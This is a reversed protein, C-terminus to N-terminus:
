VAPLDANPVVVACLRADVSEDQLKIAVNARPRNTVLLDPRVLVRMILTTEETMARRVEAIVVDGSRAAAIASENHDAVILSGPAIGADSVADSLVRYIGMKRAKLAGAILAMAQPTEAAVDDCLEALVADSLLEAPKVGFQEAISRMWEVTLRRQGEELRGIQVGSTGVRRGLEARSWGRAERLEKIRNM